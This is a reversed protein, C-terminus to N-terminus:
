GFCWLGLALLAGPAATAVVDWRDVTGGFHRDYLEKLLGAALGALFALAPAGTLWLALGSVLAGAAAHILKDHAITV